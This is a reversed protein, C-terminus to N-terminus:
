LDKFYLTMNIDGGTIIQDTVLTKWNQYPCLLFTGYERLSTPKNDADANFFVKKNIPIWKQITITGTNESVEANSGLYWQTSPPVSYKGLKYTKPYRKKQVPDVLTSGTVNHFYDTSPNGNDSNHELWYANIQTNRRDGAVAFTARIMIGEVFIRDGVRTSDTTGVSPMVDLITGTEGWAHFQYILNHFMGGSEVTRSRYKRESMNINIDKILKVLNSRKKRAVLAGTNM